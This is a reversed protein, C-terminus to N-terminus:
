PLTVRCHNPCPPQRPRNTGLSSSPPQNHEQHVQPPLAMYAQESLDNLPALDSTSTRTGSPGVIRKGMRMHRFSLFLQVASSRM